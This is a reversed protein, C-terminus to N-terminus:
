PLIKPNTYLQNCIACTLQEELKKLATSSTSLVAKEEM